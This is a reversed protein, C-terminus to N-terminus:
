SGSIYFTYFQRDIHLIDIDIIIWIFCLPKLVSVTEAPDDCGVFVLRVLQVSIQVQGTEARGIRASPVVRQRPPPTSFLSRSLGWLLGESGFPPAPPPLFITHEGVIGSSLIITAPFYFFHARQLVKQVQIAEGELHTRTM